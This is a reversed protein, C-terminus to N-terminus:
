NKKKFVSMIVVCLRIVPHKTHQNKFVLLGRIWSIWASVHLCMYVCVPNLLQVCCWGCMISWVHHHHQLSIYSLYVTYYENYAYTKSMMTIRKKKKEKEGDRTSCCNYDEDHLPSFSLSFSSTLPRSLLIWDASIRQWVAEHTLPLCSSPSVGRREKWKGEELRKGKKVYGSAM